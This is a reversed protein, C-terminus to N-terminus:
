SCGDATEFSRCCAAESGLLSESRVANLSRLLAAPLLLEASVFTIRPDDACITPHIPRTSFLVSLYGKCWSNCNLGDIRSNSGPLAQSAAILASGFLAASSRYDSVLRQNPELGGYGKQGAERGTRVRSAAIQEADILKNEACLMKHYQLQGGKHQSALQDCLGNLTENYDM